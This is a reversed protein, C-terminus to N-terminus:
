IVSWTLGLSILWRVPQEVTGHEITSALAGAAVGTGAGLALHNIWFSRPLSLEGRWHRAIVNQAPQKPLPPPLQAPMPSSVVLALSGFRMTAEMRPGTQDCIRGASVADLEYEGLPRAEIPKSEM